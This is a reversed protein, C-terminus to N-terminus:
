LIYSLIKQLIPFQELFRLFPMNIARNRPMTVILPDSWRSETGHTDKAKVQIQYSGGKKWTHNACMDDGSNYPGIWGSFTGDDWNWKYFIKDGDPDSSSTSYTYIKGVKGETPGSPRDPKSPANNPEGTTELIYLYGSTGGVVEIKEDNDIDVASLGNVGINEFQWEQKYTIGDFAYIGSESGAVIEIVEDSDVNECTLGYVGIGLDDSIWETSHSIGDIVLVEGSQISFLVEVANDDDVNSTTITKIGQGYDESKWEINQTRGDLIYVYNYFNYPGVGVVIEQDGDLDVDDISFATIGYVLSITQWELEHSIANYAYVVGKNDGTVFEIIGDDDVDGADLATLHYGLYGSYWELEHTICDFVYLIGSTYTDIGVVIEKTLDNDIDEIVLGSLYDYPTFVLLDSRWEEERSTGNLVYVYGDRTGVVIEINEDDDVDVLNVQKVQWARTGPYWSIWEEVYSEGNLVHLSGRGRGVLLENDDDSDIDDIWLCYPGFRWDMSDNKQWELEHTIGNFVHIYSGAFGVYPATTESIVIEQTGDQDLDASVSVCSTGETSDPKKWELEHTLADYV